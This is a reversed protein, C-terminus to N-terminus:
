RGAKAARRQTKRRKPNNGVHETREQGAIRGVDKRTFTFQVDSRLNGAVMMGDVWRALAGPPVALSRGQFHRVVTRDRAAPDPAPGAFKVTEIRCAACFEPSPTIDLYEPEDSV